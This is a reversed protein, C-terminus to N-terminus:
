EIQPKRREFYTPEFDLVLVAYNLIKGSSQVGQVGFDSFIMKLMCTYGCVNEAEQKNCGFPM